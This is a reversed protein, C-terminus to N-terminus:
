LDWQVWPLEVCFQGAVRGRYARCKEMVQPMGEGRGTVSLQYYM